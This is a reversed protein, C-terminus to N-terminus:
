EINQEVVSLIGTCINDVIDYVLTHPVVKYARLIDFKGDDFILSTTQKKAGTRKPEMKESVRKM